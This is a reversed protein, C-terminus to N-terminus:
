AVEVQKFFKELWNLDATKGLVLASERAQQPIIADMSKLISKHDVVTTNAYIVWFSEGFLTHVFSVQDVTVQKKLHQRVLGDLLYNITEFYPNEESLPSQDMWLLVKLGPSLRTLIAPEPMMASNKPLAIWSEM